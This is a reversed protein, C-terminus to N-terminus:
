DLPRHGTDIVIGVPTLPDVNPSKATDPPNPAYVAAASPPIIGADPDNFNTQWLPAVNAGFNNDADFAYVTNNMTAVIVLNHTGLGPIAVNQVILPQGYISSDVEYDWLKGFQGSKINTPPSSRKPWTRVRIVATM